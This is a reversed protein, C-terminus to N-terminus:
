NARRQTIMDKKNRKYVQRQGCSKRICDISIIRAFPVLISFLLSWTITDPLGSEKWLNDRFFLLFALIISVASNLFIM